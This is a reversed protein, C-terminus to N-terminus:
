GAKATIADWTARDVYWLSSAIETLEEKSVEPGSGQVLVAQGTPLTWTLRRFPEVDWQAITGDALLTTEGTPTATLGDADVSIIWVMRGEAGNFKMRANFATTPPDFGEIPGSMDAVATGDLGFDEPLWMPIAFPRGDMPAAPQTDSRRAVLFGVVAIVIAVAAVLVAVRRRSRRDFPPASVTAIVSEDVETTSTVAAYMSRLRNELDTSM